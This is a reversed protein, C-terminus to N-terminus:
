TQKVVEAGLAEPKLIAVSVHSGRYVVRGRTQEDADLSNCWNLWEVLPANLTAKRKYFIAIRAKQCQRAWRRLEVYVRLAVLWGLAALASVVWLAIGGPM